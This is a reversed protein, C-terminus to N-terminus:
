CGIGLRRAACLPTRLTTIEGALTDLLRLKALEAVHHILIRRAEHTTTRALPEDTLLQRPLLVGAPADGRLESPKASILAVGIRTAALCGTGAPSGLKTGSM